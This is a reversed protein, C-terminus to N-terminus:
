GPITFEYFYTSNTLGQADVDFLWIRYDTNTDLSTSIGGSITFVKPPYFTGSSASVTITDGIELNNLANRLNVAITSQSQGGVVRQRIYIQPNNTTSDTTNRWQGHTIESGYVGEGGTYTVPNAPDPVTKMKNGMSLGHTTCYYNLDDPANQPVAFTVTAGTTGPTGTATVGTTYETAGSDATFRLPHGANSPDSVDIIYTKGKYFKLKPRLISM